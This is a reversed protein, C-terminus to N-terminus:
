MGPPPPPPPGPPPPPIILDPPPSVRAPSSMPRTEEYVERTKTYVRGSVPVLHGNAYMCQVYANDYQRQSYYSSGQAAEIGVLSGFLLGSGAGVAAGREGGMVAGAAAGIATGTVASAVGSQTATQSPSVGGVYELAYQRCRMDDYRFQEFSKNSGPYVMVSPGTPLTACAGLFFLMSLPLWKLTASRM